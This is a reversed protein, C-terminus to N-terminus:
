VAAQLEESYFVYRYNDSKSFYNPREDLDPEIFSDIHSKDGIDVTWIIYEKNRKLTKTKFNHVKCRGLTPHESTM